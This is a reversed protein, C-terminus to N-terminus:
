ESASRGEQAGEENGPAPNAQGVAGTSERLLVDKDVREPKDERLQRKTRRLQKAVKNLATNFALYVDAGKGEASKMPLAGMQMNVSCRYTIGEKTFHVAATNLRGFYKSAVRLISERAYDPLSDGLHVNSSQITIAKDM